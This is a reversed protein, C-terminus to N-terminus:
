GEGDIRLRIVSRTAKPDLETTNVDAIGKEALTFYRLAAEISDNQVSDLTSVAM